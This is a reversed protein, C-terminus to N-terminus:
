GSTFRMYSDCPSRHSYATHRVLVSSNACMDNTLPMQVGLPPFCTSYMIPWIRRLSAAYILVLFFISTFGAVMLSCSVRNRRHSISFGANELWVFSSSVVVVAFKPEVHVTLSSNTSFIALIPTISAAHARVSTFSALAAFFVSPAFVRVMRPIGFSISALKAPVSFDPCHMIMKQSPSEAFAPITLPRLLSSRLIM